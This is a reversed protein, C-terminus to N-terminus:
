SPGAPLKEQAYIRPGQIADALHARNRGQQAGYGDYRFFARLVEVKNRIIVRAM